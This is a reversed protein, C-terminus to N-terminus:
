RMSFFTSQRPMGYGRAAYSGIHSGFSTGKGGWGHLGMSWDKGGFSGSQAGAAEATKQSASSAGTYLGSALTFAGTLMSNMMARRGAARYNSANASHFSSQNQFDTSQQMMNDVNQRGNYLSMGTQENIAYGTDALAAAASGSATVGSAGIAARQQGMRMLARRRENEANIKNNEDQREATEQAKDANMQAIQANQESQRAAAEAQAQQARGQMWSAFLTGVITAAVGM